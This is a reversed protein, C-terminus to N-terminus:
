GNIIMKIAEETYKLALQPKESVQELIDYAEAHSNVKLYEGYTRDVNFYASLFFYPDYGWSYNSKIATMVGVLLEALPKVDYRMVSYESLIQVILETPINGPDRGMGLLSGDVILSRNTGIVQEIAHYILASSKSLNEHLHIGIELNNPLISDFLDFLEKFKVFSLAGFTDVISVGLVDLAKINELLNSIVDPEHSSIGIPNLYVPIGLNNLSVLDAMAQEYEDLRFALRIIFEHSSKNLEEVDFTGARLLFTVKSGKLLPREKIFFSDVNPYFTSASDYLNGQLFGVEILDVNAKVLGNLIEQKENLGFRGKNVHAGDRLTCDLIKINM